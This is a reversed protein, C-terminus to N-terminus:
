KTPASKSPAAAPAPSAPASGPQTQTGPAPEGGVPARVFKKYDDPPLFTIEPIPGYVVSTAEMKGANAGTRLARLLVGDTTICATAEVNQSEVKWNTCPHRAVDDYGEVTFKMKDNLMFAFNPENGPPIEAYGKRDPFLVTVRQKDKDILTSGFTENSDPFHYLDIRIDHSSNHYAITVKSADLKLSGSLAYTVTVDSVPALLPREAARASGALSGLVAITAAAHRISHKM